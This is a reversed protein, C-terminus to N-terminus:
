KDTFSVGDEDITITVPFTGWGGVQPVYYYPNLEVTQDDILQSMAAEETLNANLDLPWFAYIFSTEDYADNIYTDFKVSGDENITFTIYQAVVSYDIDGGYVEEWYDAFPDVVRWIPFDKAKQLTVNSYIGDFDTIITGEYNIWEYDRMISRRLLNTAYVNKYEKPIEVEFSYTVGLEADPFKVNLEAVEQGADFHISAPIDFIANGDVSDNLNVSVPIDAAAASEKRYVSITLVPDDTPLYTETASSSATGFSVGQGTTQPGAHYDDDDSCSSLIGAIAIGILLFYKNLKM